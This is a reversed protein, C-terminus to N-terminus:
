RTERYKIYRPDAGIKKLVAERTELGPKSPAKVGEMPFAFVYAEYPLLKWGAYADYSQPGHERRVIAKAASANVAWVAIDEAGGDDVIYLKLSSKRSTSTPSKTVM